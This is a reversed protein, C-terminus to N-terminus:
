RVESVLSDILRLAQSLYGDGFLNLHNLVHYLNYLDRRVRYGPDRPYNADYAAYFAAPFGGFLETMALDAERDGYYVAPDFIVPEGHKLVDWNGGWLDGHLLSGHPSYGTFFGDLLELLREGERQLRGRHGRKAALGLQYGLRHERYFEIWNESPSNCQPTTGIFNACQWGFQGGSHRHQRALLEGLTAAARADGTKRGFSLWEMVLYSLGDLEGSELVAPVRIAGCGALARLGDAEADFLEGARPACKIFWQQTRGSVHWRQGGVGSGLQQWGIIESEGTLAKLRPNLATRITGRENM